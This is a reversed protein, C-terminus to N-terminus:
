YLVANAIRAFSEREAQHEEEPRGSQLGWPPYGFNSSCDFDAILGRGFEGVTQVPLPLPSNQGEYIKPFLPNCLAPVLPGEFVLYEDM